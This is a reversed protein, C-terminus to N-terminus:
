QSNRCSGAGRRSTASTRSQIRASAASHSAAIRAYSTACRYGRAIKRTSDIGIRRRDNHSPDRQRLRHVSATVVAEAERTVGVPQAAAVERVRGAGGGEGKEGEEGADRGVECRM